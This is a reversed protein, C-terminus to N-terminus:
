YFTCCSHILSWEVAMEFGQKFLKRQFPYNMILCEFGPISLEHNLFQFHVIYFRGAMQNRVGSSEKYECYKTTDHSLTSTCLFM